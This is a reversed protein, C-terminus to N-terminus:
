KKLWMKLDGGMLEQSLEYCSPIELDYGHYTVLRTGSPMSGLVKILFNAYYIYLSTSYEISDDIRALKYLNEAFSNFFYISDYEDFNLQTFNGNTFYANTVGTLGKASIAYDLLEKRQEIGFFNAEPAFHAGAICFKGVGSGIDLVKTGVAPALFSVSQKVVELPTWHIRSLKQIKEPFLSDFADDNKYFSLHNLTVNM